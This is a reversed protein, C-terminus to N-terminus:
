CDDTSCDEDISPDADTPSDAGHGVYRIYALIYYPPEHIDSVMSHDHSPVSHDHFAMLSGGDTCQGNGGSNLETSGGPDSDMTHIHETTGGEAGLVDLDDTAMLFLGSLDPTDETGDCLAWGRPITDLPGSWM